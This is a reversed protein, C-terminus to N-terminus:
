STTKPSGDNGFVGRFRKEVEEQLNKDGHRTGWLKRGGCVSSGRKTGVRAVDNGPDTFHRRIESLEGRLERAGDCGRAGCGLGSLREDRSDLSGLCCQALADECQRLRFHSLDVPQRDLDVPELRLELRVSSLREMAWLGVAELALEVRRARREVLANALDAPLDFRESWSALLGRRQDLPLFTSSCSSRAQCTGVGTRQPTRRVLTNEDTTSPAQHRPVGIRSQQEGRVYELYRVAERGVDLRSVRHARWRTALRMGKSFIPSWRKESRLEPNLARRQSAVAIQTRRATGSHADLAENASAASPTEMDALTM